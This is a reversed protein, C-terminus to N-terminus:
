YTGGNLDETWSNINNEKKRLWIGDTSPNEINSKRINLVVKIVESTNNPILATDEEVVGIYVDGDSMYLQGGAAAMKVAGSTTDTRDM